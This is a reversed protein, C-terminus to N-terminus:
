SKIRNMWEIKRREKKIKEVLPKLRNTDFPIYRIEETESEYLEKSTCITIIYENEDEDNIRLCNMARALRILSIRKFPDDLDYDEARIYNIETERRTDSYVIFQENLHKLLIPYFFRRYVRLNIRQGEMVVSFGKKM